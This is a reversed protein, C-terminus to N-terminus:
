SARHRHSLRDPQRVLPVCRPTWGQSDIEADAADALPTTTGSDAAGCRRFGTVLCWRRLVLGMASSVADAPENLGAEILDRAGGLGGTM